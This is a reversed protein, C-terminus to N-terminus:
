QDAREDTAARSATPESIPESIPKWRHTALGLVSDCVQAAVTRWRATPHQVQTRWLRKVLLRRWEDCLRQPTEEALIVGAVEVM